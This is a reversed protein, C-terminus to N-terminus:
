IADGKLGDSMLMWSDGLADGRYVGANTCAFLKDARTALRKVEIGQPGRLPYIELENHLATDTDVQQDLPRSDIFM